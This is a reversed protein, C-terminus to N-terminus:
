SLVDKRRFRRYGLAFFIVAYLLSWLVGRQMSTWDPQTSSFLDLWARGYHGPLGKRWDGLADITDLIGSVIYAILAAGVAALPTDSGVGVLFAIGAIPLVAIFLYAAAIGLRPLMMSWAMEGGGPISFAATGYAISGVSLAWLVLLVLAVAVSFLGILVKSTLLRARGVPATLLYRLSSWSAEAPVPDGVFLAAVIYFLLEGSVLFVFLTFNASGSTALDVMRTGSAASSSRRTGLAFSAVFILPLALLIGFIWQTRRRRVQRGLEARLSLPASM